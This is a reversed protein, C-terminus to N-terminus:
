SAGGKKATLLREVERRQRRERELVRDLPEPLEADLADHVIQVIVQQQLAETEIAPHFRVPKYRRDPKMIELRKLDYQEVQAETLAIRTWNLEGGIIQELVRRTNDEIQGGQHDYDGAYLVRDGPSLIPAIDTHLFGGVQGNTAAIKACYKRVLKRLVGALSRSETLTLPARGRWPDLRATFKATWLAAQKISDFGTYDDLSRTEDVIWDWPVLGAERLDTLADHLVQDPRRGSGNHESHKKLVERVVLEYFLFRASTPLGDEGAAAHEQLLEFVIRRLGGIASTNFLKRELVPQNVVRGGFKCFRTADCLQPPHVTADNM